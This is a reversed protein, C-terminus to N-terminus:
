CYANPAMHYLQMVMAVVQETTSIPMSYIIILLVVTVHSDSFIGAPENIKPM